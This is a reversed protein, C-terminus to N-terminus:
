KGKEQSKIYEKRIISNINMEILDAMHKTQDRFQEDFLPYDLQLHYWLGWLYAEQKKRSVTLRIMNYYTLYLPVLTYIHEDDEELGDEAIVWLEKFYPLTDTGEKDLKEFMARKYDNVFAVFRKSHNAKSKRKKEKNKM